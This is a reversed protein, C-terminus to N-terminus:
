DSSNRLSDTSFRKWSRVGSCTAAANSPKTALPQRGIAHVSTNMAAEAKM